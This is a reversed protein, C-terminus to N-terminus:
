KALAKDISSWYKEIPMWFWDDEPTEGNITLTLHYTVKAGNDTVWDEPPTPDESYFCISSGNFQGDELEEWHSEVTAEFPAYGEMFSATKRLVLVEQGIKPMKEKFSYFNLNLKTMDYEKILM